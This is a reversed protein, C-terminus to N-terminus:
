LMFGLNSTPFNALNPFVASIDSGSVGFWSALTAGYQDLSTSPIWRGNSSADEPGNLVFEPLRGYVDGGNVAGGMLIQQSGWGHDSGAGSAPKLTRGFESLTFTTVNSSVGLEVTADYFAKIAADLQTMLNNQDPIQNSHTDFGGMSCFFIQRRLALADRVKIIKAAQLLQSGISTGPFVTSVTVGQLANVLTATQQLARGTISNTAQVLSIGTDFTLMEQLAVLRANSASSGNFGQLGPTSGPVMAYASTQSGTCFISAGALTTIPPFQQGVNIPEVKDALRGAWGTTGFGSPNSTQWQQQQDSHSFLNAPSPKTRNRYETRTLPQFLVGVNAVAALRNSDFLTKCNALAPHLGFNRVGNSATRATVPLLAGGGTQPLALGGSGQAGRINLYDQYRFGAPGSNDFPALLNNGDNGGFMFICVLAKYDSPSQALANMLGFRDFGTFAGMAAAACCANRIFDRRSSAM